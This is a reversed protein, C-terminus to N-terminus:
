TRRSRGSGGFRRVRIRFTRPPSGAMSRLDSIGARPRVSGIDRGARVGRPGGGSCIMGVLLVPWTCSVYSWRTRKRSNAAKVRVDRKGLIEDVCTMRSVLVDPDGLLLDRPTAVPIGFAAAHTPVAHEWRLLAWTDVAPDNANSQFREGAPWHWAADTMGPSIM